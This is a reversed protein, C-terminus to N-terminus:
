LEHMMEEWTNLETKGDKFDKTEQVAKQFESLFKDRRTPRPRTARLVQVKEVGGIRTLVKRLGPVISKDSINVLMQTM